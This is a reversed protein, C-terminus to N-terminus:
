AVPEKIPAEDRVWYRAVAMEAFACLLALVIFLPWLESGLRARSIDAGLSRSADVVTVRDPTTTMTRAASMWQTNDIYDLLSENTPGNVSVANVDTEDTTRFVVVGPREQPPMLAITRDGSSAAQVTRDTSLVDRMVLSPVGSFRPPVHVTVAEGLVATAGEDRPAALHAIGRVILTPFLGTSPLSSWATTPPVAVYLVWGAGLTSETLWPGATTTIIAQGALASRQTFIRPSEVARTEGTNRFVGDFLPHTRQLSTITWPQNVASAQITGVSLGLADSLAQTGAEGSAFAMVSGGATVFQRAIEADQQSVNGDAIVIVDFRARDGSIAAVSPYREVVPMSEALAGIRLVLDIYFASADDGILAVNAREPVRFAIHRVNDGDIADGDVEVAAPIIGRRQPLAALLVSRSAGAPIDITRQAVRVRDFSMSVPIGVADTSSGNRVIAEIEVAKDPQLLRTVVRVSDVSLNQELGELGKGVRVLFMSATQTLLPLTDNEARRTLSRQADSIVYVEQHAHAADKLVANADRLVQAMDARQWTLRLADVDRRAQQLDRTFAVQRMAEVRALPIVCVEDGDKLGAIISRAAAQAQQFRQGGPDSAEMSTSNDVLVVVSSRTEIGLLPLTGPITPRAFALVAFAVLLTRLILLLIQQLKIRRVKSQQLLQLFRLSSFEVVRLRRLNLLHLLVPIGAAALGILVFPNLFNV